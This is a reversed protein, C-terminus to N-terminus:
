SSLFFCGSPKRDTRAKVITCLRQSALVHGELKLWGPLLFPPEHSLLLRAWFLVFFLFPPLSLVSPLEVSEFVSRARPKTYFLTSPLQGCAVENCGCAHLHKARRDHRNWPLWLHFSAWPLFLNIWPWESTQFCFTQSPNSSFMCLIHVMLHGEPFPIVVHLCGRHQRNEQAGTLWMINRHPPIRQQVWEVSQYICQSPSRATCQAQKLGHQGKSDKRTRKERGGNDCIQLIGPGCQNHSLSNELVCLVGKWDGIFPGSQTWAPLFDSCPSDPPGVKQFPLELNRPGHYCLRVM